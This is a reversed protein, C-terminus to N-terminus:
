SYTPANFVLYIARQLPSKLTEYAKNATSSYDRSLMREAATRQSFADPHTQQQVRLYNKHLKSIDLDFSPKTEFLIDFYTKDTTKQIVSCNKNQCIPQSQPSNYYCKWCSYQRLIFKRKLILNMNVTSFSTTRFQESSSSARQVLRIERHNM